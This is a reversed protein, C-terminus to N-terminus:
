TATDSKTKAKQTGFKKISQHTFVRTTNKFTIDKRYQWSTIVCSVCCQVVLNLLLIIWVGSNNPCRASPVLKKKKKLLVQWGARYLQFVISPFSLFNGDRCM